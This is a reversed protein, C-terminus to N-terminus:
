LLKVAICSSVTNRFLGPLCLLCLRRVNLAEPVDSMKLGCKSFKMEEFIKIILRRRAPPGMEILKRLDSYPSHLVEPVTGKDDAFPFHAMADLRFQRGSETRHIEHTIGNKTAHNKRAISLQDSVEDM